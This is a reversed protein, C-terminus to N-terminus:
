KQLRLFQTNTIIPLIVQYSGNSLTPANTVTQWSGGAGLAFTSKLTYDAASAPWWVKVSGSGLLVIQL